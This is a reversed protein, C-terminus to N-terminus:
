MLVGYRFMVLSPSADDTVEWRREDVKAMVHWECALVIEVLHNETVIPVPMTDM